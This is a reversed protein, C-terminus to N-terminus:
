TRLAAARALDEVTDVDLQIGEDDLPLDFGTGHQAVSASGRDRRYRRRTPETGPPM